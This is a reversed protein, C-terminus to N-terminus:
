KVSMSFCGLRMKQKEFTIKGIFMDKTAATETM